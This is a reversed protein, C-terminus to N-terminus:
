SISIADAISLLEDLANSTSGDDFEDFLMKDIEGNM